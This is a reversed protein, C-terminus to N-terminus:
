NINSLKYTPMRKRVRRLYHKPEDYKLNTLLHKYVEDPTMANIKPAAKNMNTKRTFAWAINGAGTNYAAITCYLRSEPNKIKRLYRYYLIHLYTTGMEINNKSNYLYTSSPMGKEKYLYYYVDRGASRPVIQMLGFAPIHSKAFPNFNSETQMIAFVLPIPLKFRTANKVVEDKYVQSRKLMTNNPLAITVKYVNELGFNSKSVKVKNEKIVKRAYRKVETQTPKKKFVVTSLIPKANVKSTVLEKPTKLSALKKQLTDTNVVEKTNKSVVYSIQKTLKKQAEDANKAIVEVVVTNNEFDVKSRSKKDDSYSVWEKKTSLDPNKWFKKLSKQYDDYAKQQDRKYTDFDNQQASKFQEFEARMKAMEDEASSAFTLSFFSTFIFTLFLTKM